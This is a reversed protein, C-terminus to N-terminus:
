ACPWGTGCKRVYQMVRRQGPYTLVQMHNCVPMKYNHFMEAANIDGFCSLHTAVDLVNDVLPMCFTPEGFVDNLGSANLNYVLRIDNEGKPVYFFATLSLVTVGTIYRQIQVKHVKKKIM